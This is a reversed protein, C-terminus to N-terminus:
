PIQERTAPHKSVNTDTRSDFLAGRRYYLVAASQFRCEVDPERGFLAVLAERPLGIELEDYHRICRWGASWYLASFLVLAVCGAVLHERRPNRQFTRISM